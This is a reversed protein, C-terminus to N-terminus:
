AGYVCLALPAAITVLLPSTNLNRVNAECASVADQVPHSSAM